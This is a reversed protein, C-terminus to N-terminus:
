AAPELESDDVDGDGIAPSPQEMEVDPAAEMDLHPLIRDLWKPVWWNASGLLSMTSPVLVMRVLTADLFVATALGLGFMKVTMNTSPVFAIFVSIMILAASTIVRATSSLGDVVSRRGDGHAVWEERVRSLLFVEYDMSLGFLIAFMILPVFPNVPVTADLGILDKGWGWQFVAVIVGYAAGISLLNMLAAKLPVFISRFVVMLLIFSLMVVAAIFIPLREMLRTSVDEFTATQGTIMATSDSEGLAAPFVDDRLRNVTDSTDEDQPSTTPVANLVAYDGEANFMPASVAAIGPDASVADSVLQVSDPDGETGVVIQLPGNFGDGFADSLLDYAKRQTHETPENGDDSFGIRLQTVPITLVLLMGFSLLAYRVPHSSVHAAWRGSFTEHGPRDDKRRHIAFRDISHGAWGLLAPLLTVALAMAVIVVLGISYGMMTVAPLGSLQLGVIAIVVTMGAFLVAQGATANATGVADPVTLGKHLEERHRTVVFLAYDIGVGLGIMVGLTASTEPVSTFGAVLGVGGLGIIIGILAVGIPMGAAIVSGFAVLLVIMAVILGITEDSEVEQGPAAIEGSLETQIGADRASEIAELADDTHAETLTLTTYQVTAFGTKGDPAITPGRADYPDSVGVVDTGETLDELVTVVASRAPEEDLRGEDVHFVVRGSKGAQEPFREELLDTARQSEVGPVTFNDEYEGGVSDRLGLVAVAILLWVGMTRFPHRACRRGLRFLFESM